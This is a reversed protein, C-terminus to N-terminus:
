VSEAVQGVWGREFGLDCLAWRFFSRRKGGIWTLNPRGLSGDGRRLLGIPVRTRVGERWRSGEENEGLCFFTSKPRRVFMYYALVACGDLLGKGARTGSREIRTGYRGDEDGVAVGEGSDGEGVGFAEGVCPTARWVDGEGCWVEGEEEVDGGFFGSFSASVSLFSVFLFFQLLFDSFHKQPHRALHSSSRSRRSQLLSIPRGISLTRSPDCDIRAARDFLDRIINPRGDFREYM